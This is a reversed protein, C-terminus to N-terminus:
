KIIDRERRERPQMKIDFRYTAPKFALDDRAAPGDDDHFIVIIM